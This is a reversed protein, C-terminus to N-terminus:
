NCLEYLFCLKKRKLKEIIVLFLLKGIIIGNEELEGLVLVQM